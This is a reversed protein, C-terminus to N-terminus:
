LAKGHQVGENFACKNWHQKAWEPLEEWSKRLTGDHYRCIRNLDEKYLEEGTM